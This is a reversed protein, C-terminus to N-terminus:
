KKQIEVELVDKADKAEWYGRPLRPETDKLTGDPLVVKKLGDVPAELVLTMGQTKGTVQLLTAFADRISTEKTAGQQVIEACRTYYATIAPSHADFHVPM